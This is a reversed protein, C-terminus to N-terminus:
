CPPPAVGDDDVPLRPAPLETQGDFTRVEARGLFVAASITEHVFNAVQLKDAFVAVSEGVLRGQRPAPALWTLILGYGGVRPEAFVPSRGLLRGFLFRGYRGFADAARAILSAGGPPRTRDVWVWLTLHPSATAARSPRRFAIGHRHVDLRGTCTGLEALLRRLEGAYQEALVRPEGAAHETLPLLAEDAPPPAAGAPPAVVAALVLAALGAWSRRGM